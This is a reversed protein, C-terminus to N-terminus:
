KKVKPIINEPIQIIKDDCGKAFSSLNYMNKETWVVDLRDDGLVINGLKNRFWEALKMYEKDYAVNNRELPDVRLDYLGMEAKEPTCKLPWKVDFNKINQVTPVSTGKRSRM